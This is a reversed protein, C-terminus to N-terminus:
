LRLTGFMPEMPGIGEGPEAGYRLEWIAAFGPDCERCGTCDQKACPLPEDPEPECNPVNPHLSM